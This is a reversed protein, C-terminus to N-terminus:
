HIRLFRRLLIELVLRNVRSLAPFPLTLAMNAAQWLNDAFMRPPFDSVIERGAKGMATGDIEKSSIRSMLSSLADIDYPDFTFGNEGERILEPACGCHNSVLVPLGAAMAENVVLGWQETTSAHVFADALGYYAPLEDYQKFGPFLVDDGVGLESCLAVLEPRLPGDGLLVLKWANEGVAKHYASYARLLGSLNKKEIFRSSALFYSQPLGLRKREVVNDQRARDAGEAFHANDVIDYGKFIYDGQMGLDALYEAHRQGGVLGTSCLGVIRRKAFEGLFTRTDDQKQSESMVVVHVQNKWCWRLAALAGVSSWGPIAVVEPCISSLEKEIKDVLRMDQVSEGDAQMIRVHSFSRADKREDWAYTHDMPLMEIGVVDGSEGAANLRAYHYPGFRNFLVALRIPAKKKNNNKVRNDM